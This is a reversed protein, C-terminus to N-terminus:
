TNHLHQRVGQQYYTGTEVVTIGEPAIHRRPPTTMARGYGKQRNIKLHFDQVLNQPPCCRCSEDNEEKFADSRLDIKM